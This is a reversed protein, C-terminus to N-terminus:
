YSIEDLSAFSIRASQTSHKLVRNTEYDSVILRELVSNLELMNALEVAGKHSGERIRALNLERLTRNETLARALLIVSKSGLRGNGSLDLQRLSKNVQLAMALPPTSTDDIARLRLLLSRLHANRSLAISLLRVDNKSLACHKIVLSELATNEALAEFFGRLNPMVHVSLAVLEKIPANKRLLRALVDWVSQQNLSLVMLSELAVKRSELVAAFEELGEDPSTISYITAKSISDFKQLLQALESLGHGFYVMAVKIHCPELDDSNLVSLQDEISDSYTLAIELPFRSLTVTASCIRALQAACFPNQLHVLLKSDLHVNGTMRQRLIMDALDQGCETRLGNLLPFEPYLIDRTYRNTSALHMADQPSLQSAVSKLALPDLHIPADFSTQPDGIGASVCTYLLWVSLLLLMTFYFLRTAKGRPRM